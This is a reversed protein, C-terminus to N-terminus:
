SHFSCVQPETSDLLHNCDRLLLEKLKSELNQIVIMKKNSSKLSVCMEKNDQQDLFSTKVYTDEITQFPNSTMNQSTDSQSNAEIRGDRQILTVLIQAMLTSTYQESELTPLAKTSVTSNGDGMHDYGPLMWDLLQERLPWKSTNYGENQIVHPLYQPRYSDPLDHHELYTRLFRLSAYTPSSLTPMFLSWIDRDPQVLSLQLLTELLSFAAAAAHQLSVCRNSTLSSTIYLCIHMMFNSLVITDTPKSFSVM